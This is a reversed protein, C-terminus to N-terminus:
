EACDKRDGLSKELEDDDIIQFKLPVFCKPLLLHDHVSCNTFWEISTPMCAERLHIISTIIRAKITIVLYVNLHEEDENPCPILLSILDPLSKIM